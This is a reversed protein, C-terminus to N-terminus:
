KEGMYRALDGPDNIQVNDHTKRMEAADATAQLALLHEMTIDPFVKEFRLAMHPTMRSRGNLVFSLSPRSVGLYHALADQKLKPYKSLTFRLYETVKNQRSSKSFPNAM